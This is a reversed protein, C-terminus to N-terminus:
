VFDYRQWILPEEYYGGWVVQPMGFANLITEREGGGGGEEEKFRHHRCQHQHHQHHHYHHRHRHKRCHKHRHRRGTVSEVEVDPSSPAPDKRRRTEDKLGRHSRHHHSSHKGHERTHHHYSPEDGKSTKAKKRLNAHKRPSGSDNNDYFGPRLVTPLVEELRQFNISFFPDRKGSHEQAPVADYGYNGAHAPIRPPAVPRIKRSTKADQNAAPRSIPYTPGKYSAPNSRMPTNPRSFNIPITPRTPPLPGPKRTSIRGDEFVLGERKRETRSGRNYDNSSKPLYGESKRRRREKPLDSIPTKMSTPVSVSRTPLGDEGEGEGEGEGTRKERKDAEEKQHETWDRLRTFIPLKDGEPAKTQEESSIISDLEHLKAELREAESKGGGGGEGGGEGEGDGPKKKKGCLPFCLVSKIVTCIPKREPPPPSHSRQSSTVRRFYPRSRSTPDSQPHHQQPPDALPSSM